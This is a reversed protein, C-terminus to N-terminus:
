KKAKLDWLMKTYGTNDIDKKSIGLERIADRIRAKAKALEPKQCLYEIEIFYGLKDVKNLEIHLRKDKKHEYTESFKKKDIWEKFGMDKFLSLFNNVEQKSISFEYEEKVVIESDWLSKLWKKFNITYSSSEQRIRFSKKPYDCSIAFYKDKKERKQVLRAIEKIKNRMSNADQVKIKSEVELWSM